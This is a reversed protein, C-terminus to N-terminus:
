ILQYKGNMKPQLVNTTSAMSSEDENLDATLLSVPNGIKHTAIDLITVQLIQLIM